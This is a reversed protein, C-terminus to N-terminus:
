RLGGIRLERFPGHQEDIKVQFRRALSAWKRKSFQPIAGASPGFVESWNRLEKLLENWSSDSNALQAVQDALDSVRLSAKSWLGSEVYVKAEAFYRLTNSLVYRDFSGRSEAVARNAAELAADAASQTKWIQKIAYVLSM